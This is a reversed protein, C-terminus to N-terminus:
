AIVCKCGEDKDQNVPPTPEDGPPKPKPKVPQKPEEEVVGDRELDGWNPREQGDAKMFALELIIDHLENVGSMADELNDIKASTDILTCANIEKAKEKAQELSVGDRIDQKTGIMIIWPEGAAEDEPQERRATLIEEMWKTPVNNLSISSTCSYGVLFIDTQPYSLTRLQEFGEQGASDWLEIEATRTTNDDEERDWTLTFNAFTTPEYKADKEGQENEEWVVNDTTLRSLLCTKGIAGDGVILIKTKVTSM